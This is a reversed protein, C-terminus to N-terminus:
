VPPQVPVRILFLQTTVAAWQGVGAETRMPLMLRVVPPWTRLTLPDILWLRASTLSSRRLVVVVIAGAGMGVAVWGVPVAVRMMPQPRAHGFRPQPEAGVTARSSFVETRTSLRQRPM